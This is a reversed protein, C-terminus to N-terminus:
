GALGSKSNEDPFGEATVVGDEWIGSEHCGSVEREPGMLTKSHTQASVGFALGMLLAFM